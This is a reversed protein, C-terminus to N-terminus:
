RVRRSELTVTVSQLVAGSPLPDVFPCSMTYPGKGLAPDASYAGCGACPTDVFRYVLTQLQPQAAAAAALLLFFVVLSAPRRM